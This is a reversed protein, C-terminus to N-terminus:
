RRGARRNRREAKRVKRRARVFANVPMRTTRGQSTVDVQGSPISRDLCVSAPPLDDRVDPPLAEYTAPNM